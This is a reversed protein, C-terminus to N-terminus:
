LIDPRRVGRIRQRRARLNQFTRPTLIERGIVEAVEMTRATTILKPTEMVLALASAPGTAPAPQDSISIVGGSPMASPPRPPGAVNDWVFDTLASNM